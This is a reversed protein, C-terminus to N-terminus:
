QSHNDFSSALVACSRRGGCFALNTNVYDELIGNYREKNCVINLYNNVFLTSTYITTRTITVRDLFWDPRSGSGDIQVRIKKLPAIDDIELSFTDQQDREFRSFFIICCIGNQFM